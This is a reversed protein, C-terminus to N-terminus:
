WVRHATELDVEALGDDREAIELAVELQGSRAHAAHEAAAVARRERVAELHRDAETGRVGLDAESRDERVLGTAERDVGDFGADVEQVGVREHDVAAAVRQAELEQRSLVLHHEVDEHVRGSRRAVSANSRPSKRPDSVPGAAPRISREDASAHAGDLRLPSTGAM